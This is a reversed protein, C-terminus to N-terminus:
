YDELNSGLQIENVLNVGSGIELGIMKFIFIKYYDNEQDPFYNKLIFVWNNSGKLRTTSDMM